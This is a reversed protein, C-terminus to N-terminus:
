ATTTPLSQAYWAAMGGLTNQVKSFGARQLLSCAISSRYGSGCITRITDDKPLEQMRDSLDGLPIHVASEIHGATWEGPSRVDLVFGGDSSRTHLERVSIQPLHAQEMGAAIWSNIGGQLYGGIRDHGVRILSKRAEMLASPDDGVLFIEGEYPLVWGAWLSLNPGSGINIAGPLHLGGFAEPSRVDLITADKKLVASEFDRPSFAAGGPLDALIPAGESNLQKMRKYYEPFQPVTSLIRGVFSERTFSGMFVNCHREYGITSEARESIGVGCLSGAGHAPYLITGDPLAAIKEHASHFLREALSLKEAEGLLDPRGLSGVLLFDGSFLGLPQGCGGQEFLLFSLHEPTHGPTHIAELRMGGFPVEDRDSLKAHAMAYHFTEGQDYGSLWLQAGTADALAPAGSAYDAHIHTELVHKIRLGKAKAFETYVSTDRQPDIVAAEGASGIFYSYHALGPVEFRQLVMAVEERPQSAESTIIFLALSM